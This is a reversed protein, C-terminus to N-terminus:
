EGAGSLEAQKQAATVATTPSVCAKHQYRVTCDAKKKKCRFCYFLLKKSSLLGVTCLFARHRVGSLTWEKLPHAIPCRPPIVRYSRPLARVM